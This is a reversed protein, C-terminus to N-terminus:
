PSLGFLAWLDDKTLRAPDLTVPDIVEDFLAQKATLIDDIREEITGLCRYVYVTVPLTQGMRHSRDEAQRETAPNWWRDFHVVYSADALNLGQGGARLSLVLLRHNADFRFRRIVEDRQALDLAGTYALPRWPATGACIGAVGDAGTYQSFVLARHGQASLRGLRDSLDDLKVSRGTVPCFNCIQKLRTILEFIHAIRVDRGLARLAVIGEREARDYAARQHAGLELDVTITTKEPLEALVDAKRRRLQVEVHRSRLRPGPFLRSAPEAETNPQTFECISALDDIDNELPTGTLAWAARRRLQKCAIATATHRNKIRQAEDLVVVDWTRGLPNSPHASLDARVTEYGTLYVEARRRWQWARDGPAGHVTAVTLKPAWDRLARRWQGLLGVPAVVLAARGSGPVLVRELATAAQVTKGLGMDDALLLGTAFALAAM